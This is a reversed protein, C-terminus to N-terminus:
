GSLFGACIILLCSRLVLELGLRNGGLLMGYCYEVLFGFDRSFGGCRWVRGLIGM